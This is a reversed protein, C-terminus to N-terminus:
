VAGVRDEFVRPSLFFCVQKERNDHERTAFVHSRLLDDATQRTVAGVDVAREIREMVLQETLLLLGRNRIWEEEHPLLRTCHFARLAHGSFLSRFEDERESFLGDMYGISELPAHVQQAVEVVMRKITGPWGAPMDLEVSRHGEVRCSKCVPRRGDRYGSHRHFEGVPKETGCEICTKTSAIMVNLFGLSESTKTM